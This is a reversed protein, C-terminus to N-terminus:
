IGTQFLTICIIIRVDYSSLVVGIVGIKKGSRELVVSKNFLGQFSPELSADINAAVIPAKVNKLFPILGM